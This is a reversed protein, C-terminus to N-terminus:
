ASAAATCPTSWPWSTTPRASGAPRPSTASRSTAGRATSRTSPLRAPVRRAHLGDRAAYDALRPALERYTLWRNGEEPVRMWSGLHVEYISIPAALDNTGRRHPWGTADGWTTAPSTGSWRPPRPASRPPSATPTPRTSATATAAAVIAYKYRRAPASARSSGSGSGAGAGRAAHPHPRAPGLRQLRRRGLGRPREPGLRRLRDRPGTAARRRPGRAERLLPLADGRGAPPPRLRQAPDRRDDARRRSSEPRRPRRPRRPRGRAARDPLRRGAAPHRVWDPRNNLEYLLEYLAKDLTFARLLRPSRGPDAPLFSARGRRGRPVGQPVRGLDLDALAEGLPGAARLGRAPRRTFAFLAASAAYDFSRLM